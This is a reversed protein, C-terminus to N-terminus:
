LIEFNSGLIKVKFVSKKQKNKKRKVHYILFYMSQQKKKIKGSM